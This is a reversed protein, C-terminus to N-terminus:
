TIPALVCIRIIRLINNFLIDHPFFSRQVILLKVEVVKLYKLIDKQYEAVDFFRDRDNKIVKHVQDIEFVSKDVSMPTGSMPEVSMPTALHDDKM